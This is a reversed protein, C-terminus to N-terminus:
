GDNGLVLSGVRQAQFDVSMLTRLRIGGSLFKAETSRDLELSGWTGMIFDEFMGAFIDGSVIQNTRDVSNGIELENASSMLFRGSGADLLTKRLDGVMATNTVFRPSGTKNTNAITTDMDILESRTPVAGAFTVSGIGTINAIGTPQGASGSGYFGTRDVEEAVADLLQMRAYAEAAITSQMLFNRSMDTYNGVTKIGLTIKRFSHSTEAADEDESGLWFAQANVDGGPIEVNGELGDLVTMGLQGLVLRNRLNDIFRSALHDDNQINPNAQLATGGAGGGVGMPSRVSGRVGDVEFDGWSALIDSPLAYQGKAGAGAATVADLEFAAAEEDERTSRTGTALLFKRLSFRKREGENLGIDSNVLATGEPIESRAIGRFVEVSPTNGQRIQAEIFSEAINGINHTTALARIDNLSTELAEAREADTPIGPMSRENENPTPMLAEKTTTASRGVGVTMDAPVPVFSAETPRWLTVHYDGEPLGDRKIAIKEYGVSVNAVIGDLIDQRLAQAEPRSSFKVNVYLRKNKIWAKTIVGLQRSIGDHRNHNDLLPATGGNFWELDVSAKTHILIETGDWRGFPEESSLPFTLTGDDDARIASNEIQLSRNITSPM